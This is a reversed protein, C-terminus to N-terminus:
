KPETIKDNLEDNIAFGLFSLGSVVRKRIIISREGVTGTFVLADVGDMSAALSGIARQIHYVFMRLALGARYDGSAESNLLTRVDSSIGSIGRLGSTQNLYDEFEPDDMGMANKLTIAAVVDMPGSRTAMMLGELPSYGMTTDISNGKLIATASSGSGLHCIILKEPLKNQEQLRRVVSALSIGHYGYRKIEYKDADELHIAYNWATDPKTIHFASDSVLVIPTNKFCDKLHVSEQLTAGIHLPARSKLYQLKALVEDNLLHDKLFYSTPAVVRLGICKINVNKVVNAQEIIPVVQAPADELNNIPNDIKYCNSGTDVTCVIQNNEHEFHLSVLLKERNYLAYKRSSSGPNVALVLSEVAM